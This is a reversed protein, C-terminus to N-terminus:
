IAPFRHKITLDAVQSANQGIIPSSLLVLADAGRRGASVLADDLGGLSRLELIELKVSLRKAAEEVAKTQTSGTAPDWLAAVSALRPIAEKMLELWKMSFDPFDFF